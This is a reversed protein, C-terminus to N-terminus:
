PQTESHRLKTYNYQTLASERQNQLHEYSSGVFISYYKGIQHNQYQMNTFTQFGELALDSVTQLLDSVASYKFSGLDREAELQKM